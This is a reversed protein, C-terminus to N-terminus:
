QGSRVDPWPLDAEDEDDDDDGGDVAASLRSLSAANARALFFSAARLAVLSCAPTIASRACDSLAERGATVLVGEEEEEEAEDVVDPRTL